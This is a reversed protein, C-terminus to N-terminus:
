VKWGYAFACAVVGSPGGCIRDSLSKAVSQGCVSIYVARFDCVRMWDLISEVSAIGSKHCGDFYLSYALLNEQLM